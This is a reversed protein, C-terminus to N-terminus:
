VVFYSIVAIVALTIFFSFWRSEPNNATWQELREIRSKLFLNHSYDEITAGLVSPKKMDAIEPEKIKHYFKKLTEALAYPAGTISVAIDDCIKEEEQVARRFELLVVPNFFMLIRFFFVVILLPCKSRQIHAIEHAVAARIQEANLSNILGTSLFVASKGWTVSYLLPEEDNLIFVDTEEGAIEEVMKNIFSSDGTESIEHKYNKSEFAHKVIPIMEQFFFVTTTAIMVVIFFLSLPIIGWLELNLWRNIDFLSELRFYISGRDPNLLQYVPFSFIPFLIIILRFRQRILPNTIGWLHIARDVIIAAILSHIFSQTIYMGLWSNFFSSLHMQGGYIEKIENTFSGDKNYVFLPMEIKLGIRGGKVAEALVM